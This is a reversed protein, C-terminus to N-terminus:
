IKKPISKVASDLLGNSIENYYNAMVILFKKKM